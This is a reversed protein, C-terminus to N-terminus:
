AVVRPKWTYDIDRGNEKRDISLVSDLEAQTLFLQSAKPAGLSECVDDFPKNISTIFKCKRQGPRVEDLLRRLIVSNNGCESMRERITRKKRPQKEESDSGLDLAAIEDRAETCDNCECPELAKEDERCTNCFCTCCHSYTKPEARELHSFLGRSRSCRHIQGSYDLVWDPWGAEPQKVLYKTAYHAAHKPNKFKPNSIWAHGLSPNEKTNEKGTGWRNWIKSIIAHPIFRTELLVHWHPNGNKQVEFVSFFNRSNLVGVRCLERVLRSILRNSTVYRYAAEASEFNGPNITLSLMVMGSWKAVTPILKERM